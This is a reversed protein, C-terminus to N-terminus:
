KRGEGPNAAEYTVNGVVAQAGDGVNVHQHLVSVKQEGGTRYRKLTEVQAAYTRMMRNLAKENTEFQQLMDSRALQRSIRAIHLQLMGMQSALMPEVQDKPNIGAVVHWVFNANMESPGKVGPNVSGDIMQEILGQMFLPSDSGICAAMKEFSVGGGPQTGASVVTKGEDDLTLAIVPAKPTEARGAIEHPARRPKTEVPTPTVVTKALPRNM